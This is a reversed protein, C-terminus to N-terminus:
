SRVNAIEQRVAKHARHLLTKTTGIPICMAGSIDRYPYAMDYRLHIVARYSEPLNAVAHRVARSEEARITDDIPNQDDKLEPMEVFRSRRKRENLAVNRVIRLFWPRVPRRLDFTKAHLLARFVSEQVAERASDHDTLISKALTVALGYDSLVAVALPGVNQEEM